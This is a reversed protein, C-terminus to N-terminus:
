GPRLPSVVEAPLAPSLQDRGLPELGVQALVGALDEPDHGVFVLHDIVAVREPEEVRQNTGLKV